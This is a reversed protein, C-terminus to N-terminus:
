PRIEWRIVQGNLDFDKTMLPKGTADSAALHIRKGTANPIAWRRTDDVGVTGLNTADSGVGYTIAVPATLENQIELVVERPGSPAHRILSCRTFGCVAVVCLLM